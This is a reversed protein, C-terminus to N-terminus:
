ETTLPEPTYGLWVRMKVKQKHRKKLVEPNTPLFYGDSQLAQRDRIITSPSTIPYDSKKFKIKDVMQWYAFVLAVDDNRLHPYKKLLKVVNKRVEMMRM